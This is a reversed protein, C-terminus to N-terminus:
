VNTEINPKKIIKIWRSGFKAILNKLENKRNEESNSSNELQPTLNTDKSSEISETAISKPLAVLHLM